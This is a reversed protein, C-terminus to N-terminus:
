YTVKRCYMVKFQICSIIEIIELVIIKTKKNIIHKIQYKNISLNFFAKLNLNKRTNDVNQYNIHLM